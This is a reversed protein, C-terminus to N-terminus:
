PTTLVQVVTMGSLFARHLNAGGWDSMRVHTLTQGAFDEPLLIMQKDIRCSKGVPSTVTTGSWVNITTTNNITNLFSGSLWDRIDSNGSLSKSYYAGQDGYFELKTYPGVAGWSTNILTHVERISIRNVPIDIFVTGSGQSSTWGNNSEPICFPIGGLNVNGTPLNAAGSYGDQYHRNAIGTLDVCHYQLDIWIPLTKLWCDALITLDSLGIIGNEDFDAVHCSEQPQDCIGKMWFSAFVAFDDFDIATNPSLNCRM